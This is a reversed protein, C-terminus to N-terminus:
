CVAKLLTQLSGQGSLPCIQDDPLWQCCDSLDHSRKTQGVIVFVLDAGANSGGPWEPVQVGLRSRTRNVKARSEIATRTHRKGFREEWLMEPKLKFAM